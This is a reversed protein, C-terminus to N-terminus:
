KTDKNTTTIPDIDPADALRALIQAHCDLPVCWCFLRRGRLEPKIAALLEPQEMLWEEYCKIAEERTEVQYLAKTNPLHSFLNGWKSGRGVYTDTSPNFDDTKMNCVTTKPEIAM